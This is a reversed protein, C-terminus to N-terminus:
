RGQHGETINWLEERHRETCKYPEERIKKRLLGRLTAASSVGAIITKEMTPDLDFKCASIRCHLPCSETVYMEKEAFSSGFVHHGVVRCVPAASSAIGVFCSFSCPEGAQTSTTAAFWGHRFNTHTTQSPASRDTKKSTESM